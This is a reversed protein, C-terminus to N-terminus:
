SPRSPPWPGCKVLDRWKQGPSRFSSGVKIVFENKGDVNRDKAQIDTSYEFGFAIFPGSVVDGWYGKRLETKKAKNDKVALCSLLTLNPCAQSVEEEEDEMAEEKQSYSMPKAAVQEETRPYALGTKRWGCYEKHSIKAGGRDILRLQYDMEFIGDKSLHNNLFSLFFAM